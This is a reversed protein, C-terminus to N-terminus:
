RRRAASERVVLETALKPLAVAQGNLASLLAQAAVRGIEITPQRVTTLPPTTYASSPQDDFGVLSVDDPVRIANRYLALRAGYAMQDNAAFIASFLVARGLLSQIALLGSQETYDGEIILQEDLPLGAQALARTYGDRRDVADQHSRPGAIHAIRQHGLGILYRTADYAAEMDDIRLCRGEMGGVFRGIVILPLDEAVQRLYEDPIVGPLAILGDVRRGSLLNLASFEDETRWNGSAIVALYESDALGREIGLLIEGYFPSAISQTLVGVAGTRGSVLGQASPNPRYRLKKVAAHVALRKPEAVPANGTLVRSVTSASVGAERAIDHITIPNQM